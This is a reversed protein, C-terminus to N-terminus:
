KAAASKKNDMGPLTGDKSGIKKAELAKAEANLLNVHKKRFEGTGNELEEMSTNHRGLYEPTNGGAAEFSSFAINVLSMPMATEKPKETAATKPQEEMKKGTTEELQEQLVEAEDKIEEEENPMSASGLLEPAGEANIATVFQTKGTDAATDLEVASNLEASMPTRKSFRRILTKLAMANFGLGPVYGNAGDPRIDYWPSNQKVFDPANKVTSYKDRFEIADEVSYTEFDIGGTVLEIVVYYDTVANRNNRLPKHILDQHLGRVVEFIDGKRVEIPTIRKVMGSRHMLDIYGKYGIVLQAEKVGGKKNNKFPLMYARGLPGGIELGLTGAKIACGFLSMPTCEFLVPTTQCETILCRILRDVIEPKNMFAPLSKAISAKVMPALAEIGAKNTPTEWKALKAAEEPSMQQQRPSMRNTGTSM